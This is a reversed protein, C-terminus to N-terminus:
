GLAAFRKKVWRLLARVHRENERGRPVVFYHREAVKHRAPMVTTLRGKKVWAETTPFVALAVGLGQEAAVMSALYSDVVLRGRSPIADVGLADAVRKWDDHTSRAVILTHRELDSLSRIPFKTLLAPSCVVSAELTDLPWARTGPWSGNGLRIAADTPESRFDVLHDSTEIRIEVDPHDRHFEHLAPLVVEYAVFSVMSVRLVPREFARAFREFGSAYAVLVEDALQYFSRGADTLEVKRTHRHFLQRGLAEELKRIAQSLASPTVHLEEAARKFGGLRAATEFATLLQIPPRVLTM